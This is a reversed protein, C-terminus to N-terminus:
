VMEASAWSLTCCSQRRDSELGYRPVKFSAADLRVCKDAPLVMRSQLRLDIVVELKLSNTHTTWMILGVLYPM